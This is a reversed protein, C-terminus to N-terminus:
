GVPQYVIVITEGDASIKWELAQSEDNDIVTWVGRFAVDGDADYCAGTARTDSSSDFECKIQDGAEDKMSFGSATISIDQTGFMSVLYEVERESLPSSELEARTEAENLMWHGELGQDGCAVLLASTIALLPILISKKM